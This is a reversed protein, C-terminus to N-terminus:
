FHQKHDMAKHLIRIIAVGYKTQKFFIVHSATNTARLGKSIEDCPRALEPNHAIKIFTQELHKIYHATQKEGFEHISYVYIAELDDIAKPYLRDTKSPATSLESAQPTVGQNELVTACCVHSYTLLPACSILPNRGLYYFQRCGRAM